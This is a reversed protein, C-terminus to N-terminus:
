TLFTRASSSRLAGSVVLDCGVRGDGFKLVPTGALAPLRTRIGTRRRQQFHGRVLVSARPPRSTARPSLPERAGFFRHDVGTKASRVLRRESV